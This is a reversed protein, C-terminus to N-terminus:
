LKRMRKIWIEPKDSACEVRSYIGRGSWLFTKRNGKYRYISITAPFHEHSEKTSTVNTTIPIEEYRYEIMYQGTSDSYFREATLSDPEFAIPPDIGKDLNYQGNGAIVALIFLPLLLYKM